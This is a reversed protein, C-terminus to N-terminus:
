RERRDGQLVEAETNPAILDVTKTVRAVKVAAEGFEITRSSGWNLLEVLNL